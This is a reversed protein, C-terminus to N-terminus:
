PKRAAAFQAATMMKVDGDGMVVWGESQPTESVYGIVVKSGRDTDELKANWLLVFSPDKTIQEVAKQHDYEANAYERLEALSAPGRGKEQTFSIYTLGILKLHGGRTQRAAFDQIGRSPTVEIGAPKKNCGCALFLGILLFSTTHKM